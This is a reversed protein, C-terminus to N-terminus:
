SIFARLASAYHFLTKGALNGTDKLKQLEQEVKPLCGYLDEISNLNLKKAWWELHTTRM